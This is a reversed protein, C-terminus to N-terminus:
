RNARSQCWGPSSEVHELADPAGSRFTVIVVAVRTGDTRKVGVEVRAGHLFTATWLMWTVSRVGCRDRVHEVAAKERAVRM